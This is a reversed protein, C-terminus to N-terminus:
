WAELKVGKEVLASELWEPLDLKGSFKDFSGIQPSDDFDVGFFSVLRYYYKESHFGHRYKKWYLEIFEDCLLEKTVFEKWTKYLSPNTEGLFGSLIDGGNWPRPFFRFKLLGETEEIVAFFLTDGYVGGEKVNDQVRM